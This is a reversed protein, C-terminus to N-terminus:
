NCNFFHFFQILFPFKQVGSFCVFIVQKHRNLKTELRNRDKHYYFGAFVLVNLILLSCGIAIILSLWTYLNNSQVIMSFSANGGSGSNLLDLASSEQGPNLNINQSDNLINKM